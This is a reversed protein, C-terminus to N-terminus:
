PGTCTELMIQKDEPPAVCVASPISRTYLALQSKHAVIATKSGVSIIRVCYVLHWKKLAEQPHVFLARFM